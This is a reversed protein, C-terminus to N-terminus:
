KLENVHQAIKSKKRAAYNEHILDRSAMKDLYSTAEKAAEKAEEKETTELAKKVLTKMKSRQSQNRERRKENQRVRKIASKHQPM